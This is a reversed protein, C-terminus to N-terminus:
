YQPKNGLVKTSRERWEPSLSEVNQAESSLAYSPLSAYFSSCAKKGTPKALRAFDLAARIPIAPSERGASLANCLM